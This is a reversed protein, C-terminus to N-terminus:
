MIQIRYLQFQVTYTLKTINLFINGKIINYNTTDSAEPVDNM